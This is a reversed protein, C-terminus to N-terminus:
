GSLTSACTHLGCHAGSLKDGTWACKDRCLTQQWAQYTPAGHHEHQDCVRLPVTRCASTSSAAGRVPIWEADARHTDPSFMCAAQRQTCTAQRSSWAVSGLMRTHKQRRTIRKSLTNIAWEVRHALPDPFASAGSQTGGASSCAAGGTLPATRYQSTCIIRPEDQSM